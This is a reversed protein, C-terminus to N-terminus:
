KKRRRFDLGLLRDVMLFLVDWLVVLVVAMWIGEELLDVGMVMMLVWYAAAGAATFFGMKLVTRLVPVGVRQFWPRILPYYGLFVYVMAAERDPALLMSLIAVAFYYCAGLRKGCRDIVLRHILICLVPCIYTNVPILSGMSMIVVAVATLMGGFAMAQASHKM